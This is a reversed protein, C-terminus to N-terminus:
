RRNVSHVRIYLLTRLTLRDSATLSQIDLMRGATGRLYWLVGNGRSCCCNLLGAFM